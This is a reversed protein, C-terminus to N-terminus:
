FDKMYQELQMRMVDNPSGQGLAKSKPSIEVSTRSNTRTMYRRHLYGLLQPGQDWKSVDIEQYTGKVINVIGVKNVPYNPNMVNYLAKYCLLQLLWQHSFMSMQSAKIDIIRDGMLIDLEGIVPGSRLSHEVLFKAPTAYHKSMDKTIACYSDQLWFILKRRLKNYLDRQDHLIRKTNLRKFLLRRRSNVVIMKCRAINWIIEEISRDVHMHKPYLQYDQYHEAIDKLVGTHIFKEPKVQVVHAAIDYARAASHIREIIELVRTANEPNNAINEPTSSNTLGFLLCSSIDKAHHRYLQYDANSLWVTSLFMSAHEDRISSTANLIERKTHYFLLKEMFIGYDAELHNGVIEDPVAIPPSIKSTLIDEDMDVDPIIDQSRLYQIDDADVSELLETVTITSCLRTSKPLEDDPLVFHQGISLQNADYNFVQERVIESLYRSAIPNQKFTTYYTFYLGLRARTMAVYMLRRGESIDLSTKMRPFKEDVCGIIFVHDWELGKAQHISAITIFGKKRYLKSSSLGNFNDRREILVYPLQSRAFYEEFLTLPKNENCLVAMDQYEVGDVHLQRIKNYVTEVEEISSSAHFLSPKAAYRYRDEEQGLGMVKPALDISKEILANSIDIIPKTSRYNNTLTFQQANPFFNKFNLIVDVKSGRFSYISQADDGVGFIIAGQKAFEQFLTLQHQNIDQFEDVFVYRYSSILSPNYKLHDLFEIIYEDPNRVMRSTDETAATVARLCISDITGIVIQHEKGLMKKIKKEIDAAAERTFTTVIIFSSHVGNDILHKVREIMTSTKGSGACALVIAHRNMDCTVVQQQESSLNEIVRVPKRKKQAPALTTNNLSSVKAVPEVPSVLKDPVYPATIGTSNQFMNQILQRDNDELAALGGINDVLGVNQLQRSTVCGIHKWYKRVERSTYECSAFRLEGKSINGSCKKCKSTSGKAYEVIYQYQLKSSLLKLDRVGPHSLSSRPMNFGNYASRHSNYSSFIRLVICLLAALYEFAVFM